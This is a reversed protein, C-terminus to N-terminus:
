STFTLGTATVYCFTAYQDPGIVPQRPCGEAFYGAIALDKMEPTASASNLVCGVDIANIAIGCSAIHQTLEFREVLLVPSTYPKKM